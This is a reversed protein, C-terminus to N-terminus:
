KQKDCHRVIDVFSQAFEDFTLNKVEFLQNVIKDKLQVWALRGNNYRKLTVDMIYGREESCSRRAEDSYITCNNNAFGCPHRPSDKIYTYGEIQWKSIVECGQEYTMGSSLGKISLQGDAYVASSCFATLIVIKRLKENLKM